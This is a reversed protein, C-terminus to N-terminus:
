EEIRDDPNEPEVDPAKALLRLYEDRDVGKVARERFFAEAELRSIKEAVALAIFQNISTNDRDAYERLKVHLSDPLRVSIASM